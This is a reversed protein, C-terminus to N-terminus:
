RVLKMHALSVWGKRAALLCGFVSHMHQSLSWKIHVIEIEPCFSFDFKNAGSFYQM